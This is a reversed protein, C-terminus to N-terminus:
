RFHITRWPRKLPRAPDASYSPASQEVGLQKPFAAQRGRLPTSGRKSVCLEHSPAQTYCSPRQAAWDVGGRMAPLAKDEGKLATTLMTGSAIRHLFIFADLANSKGSANTGILVTLPDIHLSSKKYSKWNELRLETIVKM